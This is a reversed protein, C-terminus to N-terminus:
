LTREQRHSLKELKVKEVGLALVSRRLKRLSVGELNLLRIVGKPEQEPLRLVLTRGIVGTERPVSVRLPLVEHVARM